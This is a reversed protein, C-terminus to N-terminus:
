FFMKKIILLHKYSLSFNPPPTPQLVVRQSLFSIRRPCSLEWDLTQHVLFTQQISTHLHCSTRFSLTFLNKKIYCIM